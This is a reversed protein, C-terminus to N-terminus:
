RFVTALMALSGAVARGARVVRSATAPKVYGLYPAVLDMNGRWRDYDVRLLRTTPTVNGFRDVNLARPFKPCGVSELVPAIAALEDINAVGFVDLLEPEEMIVRQQEREAHERAERVVRQSDPDSGAASAAQSVATALQRRAYAETVDM